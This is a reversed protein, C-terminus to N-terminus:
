PAQPSFGELGLSDYYLLESGSVGPGANSMLPQTPSSGFISICYHPGHHQPLACDLPPQSKESHCLSPLYLPSCLVATGWVTDGPDNQSCTICLGLLCHTWLLSGHLSHPCSLPLQMVQFGVGAHHCEVFSFGQLGEVGHGGQCDSAM